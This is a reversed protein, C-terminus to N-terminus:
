NDGDFIYDSQGVVRKVLSQVGYHSSPVLLKFIYISCATSNVPHTNSYICYSLEAINYM